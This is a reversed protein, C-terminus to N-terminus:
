GSPTRRPQGVAAHQSPVECTAALSPSRAILAVGVVMAALCSFEAALGGTSVSVTDGLLGIGLAIGAIPELATIPPLSCDLRAAKFASQALLIGIVASGIVVYVWIHLFLAVVGRHDIEILAARTAVDQLGFLLGAGSALWMSEGVLGRRKGVAICIAVAAAISAIAIVIPGTDAERKSGSQPNGLALFVGFASSLLIAGGVERWTPKSRVLLAAVALAFLLNTSLLPEVVAVTALQLALGSLLQGVIMCGIGAWWMPRHMLDWLLEFRLLESLPATAAVRQQLVYGVGLLLAALVGVPYVM